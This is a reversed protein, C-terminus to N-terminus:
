FFIDTFFKGIPLLLESSKKVVEYFRALKGKEVPKGSRQIERLVALLEQLLQQDEPPQKQILAELEDLPSGKSFSIHNGSVDNGIVANNITAGSFDFSAPQQVPRQFNNEVYEVGKETLSLNYCMTLSIEERVYGNQMLYKVDAQLTHLDPIYQGTQEDEFPILLPERHEQEFDYIRQLLANMSPTM